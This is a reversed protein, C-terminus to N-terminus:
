VKCLTSDYFSWCFSMPSYVWFIRTKIGGMCPSRNQLKKEWHIDGFRNFRNKCFNASHNRNPFVVFHCLFINYFINLFLLGWVFHGIKRLKKVTYLELDTQGIKMFIGVTLVILSCLLVADCFKTFFTWFPYGGYM